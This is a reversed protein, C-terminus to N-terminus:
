LLFGKGHTARQSPFFMDPAILCLTSRISTSVSLIRSRTSVAVHLAMIPKTISMQTERGVPLLKRQTCIAFAIQKVRRVPFFGELIAEYFSEDLNESGSATSGPMGLFQAVQGPSRGPFCSCKEIIRCRKRLFSFFKRSISLFRLWFASFRYRVKRGRPPHHLPPDPGLPLGMLAEVTGASPPADDNIPELLVYVREAVRKTQRDQRPAPGPDSVM